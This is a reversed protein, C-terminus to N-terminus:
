KIDELLLSIMKYKIIPPCQFYYIETLINLTLNSSTLNKVMYDKVFNIFEDVFEKTM